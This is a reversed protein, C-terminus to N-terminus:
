SQSPSWQQFKENLEDKNRLEKRRQREMERKNRWMHIGVQNKKNETKPTQRSRKNQPISSGKLIDEYLKEQRTLKRKLTGSKRRQVAVNEKEKKESKEEETKRTSITVSIHNVKIEKLITIEPEENQKEENETGVCKKMVLQQRKETSAESVSLGPKRHAKKKPNTLIRPRTDLEKLKKTEVMVSIMLQKEEGCQTYVNRRTDLAETQTAAEPM